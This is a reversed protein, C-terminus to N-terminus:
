YGEFTLNRHLSKSSSNAALRPFTFNGDTWVRFPPIEMHGFMSVHFKWKDLRPFTSNGNTWVHFHPIEMDAKM